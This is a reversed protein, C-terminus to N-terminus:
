GGHHTLPHRPLDPASRVDFRRVEIHAHPDSTHAELLLRAGTPVDIRTQVGPLQPGLEIHRHSEVPKGDSDIAAIVLVGSGGGELRVAVPLRVERDVARSRCIARRKKNRPYRKVDGQGLQVLLGVDAHPIDAVDELPMWVERFQEYGLIPKRNRYKDEFDIIVCHETGGFEPGRLGRGVMQEYLVQSITPRAMFVHTVTPADFGTTLVECNCLVDIRGSKFDAIISRRTAVRTSGSVAAARRGKVRLMFAVLEADLVSPGFYLVRANPSEELTQLLTDIVLRRRRTQDAAQQLEQDFNLVQQHDGDGPSERVNLTLGTRVTLSVPCSLVGMRQLAELRQAAEEGLQQPLVLNRFLARLEETGALPQAQDFERRYPTATLGIVAAQNGHQAIIAKYTPAAARHAEDIVIAAIAPWNDFSDNSFAQPTSVLVLIPNDTRLNDFIEELNLSQRYSGWNRAVALPITGAPHSCWVDEFCEVAQECLEETHALWVLVTHAAAGEELVDHAWRHLCEVAVKTKGAGTPLSVMARNDPASANLRALMQDRVERQYTKLSRYAAPPAVRVLAGPRERSRRGALEVPLGAAAVFRHAAHKGPYWAKPNGIKEGSHSNIANVLTKRLQKNALLDVDHAILLADALEALNSPRDQDTAARRDARLTREFDGVLRRLQAASLLDQLRQSAAYQWEDPRFCTM